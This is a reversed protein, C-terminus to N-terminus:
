SIQCGTVTFTCASGVANSQYLGDPLETLFGDNASYVAYLHDNICIGYEPFTTPYTATDGPCLKVSAITIGDLGKPGAPGQEGQIGQIGQPGQPGVEGPVGKAGAEGAPGRPACGVVMSLVAVMITYKM